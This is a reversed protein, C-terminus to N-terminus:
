RLRRGSESEFVFIQAPDISLGVPDGVALDAEAPGSALIEMSGATVSYEQAWGRDWKEQVRWPSNQIRTLSVASRRFCATVRPEMPGNDPLKVSTGACDVVRAGDRETVPLHITNPRHPSFFRAVFLNAPDRYLEAASGYQELRGRNLIAIRGAVESAEDQDHTVYLTTVRLERQIRRIAVRLESRSLPDLSALPEDLLLLDPKAVLARGLSIRQQEGGSLTEPKRELLDALGLLQIVRTVWDEDKIRRLKAALRLNEGASLTPLLASHQFALSVHRDQPQLDLLSREGLGIEGADPRELGAILRLLTSKGAGSPGLLAVCEGSAVDLSFDDLAALAPTAKQRPFVKRLHLLRLASM